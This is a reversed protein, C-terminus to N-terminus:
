NGKGSKVQVFLCHLLHTIYSVYRFEINLIILVFRLDITFGSIWILCRNVPCIIMNWFSWLFVVPFSKLNICLTPHFLSCLLVSKLLFCIDGVKQHQICSSEYVVRPTEETVVDNVKYILLFVRWWILVFRTLSTVVM